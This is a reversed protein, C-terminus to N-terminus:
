WDLFLIVSKQPGEGGALYRTRCDLFATLCVMPSFPQRYSNRPIVGVFDYVM